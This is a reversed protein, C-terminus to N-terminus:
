RRERHLAPFVNGSEDPCERAIVAVDDVVEGFFDKLTLGRLDPAEQQLGGDEM